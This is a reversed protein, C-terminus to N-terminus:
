DTVNGRADTTIIKYVRCVQPPFSQAVTGDFSVTLFDGVEYAPCDDLTTHVVVPNGFGLYCNGEDTVEVLCSFDYKELVEGTFYPYQTDIHDDLVSSEEGRTDETVPACSVISTFIVAMVM